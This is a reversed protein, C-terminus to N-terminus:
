NSKGTDSEVIANFVLAGVVPVDTTLPLDIDVCAILRPPILVTTTLWDTDNAAKVEDDDEDDDKEDDELVEDEDDDEDDEDDPVGDRGDEDIAPLKVIRSNALTLPVLEDAM